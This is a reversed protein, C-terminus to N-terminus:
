CRASGPWITRCWDPPKTSFARNVGYLTSMYVQFGEIEESALRVFALYLADLHEALTRGSALADSM